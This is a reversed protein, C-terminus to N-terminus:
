PSFLRRWRAELLAFVAVAVLGGAMLTLLLDGHPSEWAEHLAGGSGRAERPARLLAAKWLSTAILGWIIARSLFALRGVIAVIRRQCASMEEVRLRRGLSGPRAARVLRVLAVATVVMAVTLLLPRGLPAHLASASWHRATADDSAGALARGALAVVAAKWALGAYGLAITANAIRRALRRTATRSGYPEGILALLGRFLAHAGLGLSVVGIMARGLATTAASRLVGSPGTAEGGVGSAAALALGAVALYVSAKAIFGLRAL